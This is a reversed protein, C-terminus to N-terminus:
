EDEPVLDTLAEKWDELADGWGAIVEKWSDELAAALPALMSVILEEEQQLKELEVQLIVEPDEEGHEKWYQEREAIYAELQKIADYFEDRVNAIPKDSEPVPQDPKTHAKLLIKALGEFVAILSQQENNL